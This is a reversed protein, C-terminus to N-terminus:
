SQKAPFRHAWSELEVQASGALYAIAHYWGALVLLEILTAESFRVRMAAWTADSVRGHGHLEDVFTLTARDEDAWCVDTYDGHVLSPM